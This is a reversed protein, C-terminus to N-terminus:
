SPSYTYAVFMIAIIGALLIAGTFIRVRQAQKYIKRSSVAIIM